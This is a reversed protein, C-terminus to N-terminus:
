FSRDYNTLGFVEQWPLDLEDETHGLHFGKKRWEAFSGLEWVGDTQTVPGSSKRFDDM